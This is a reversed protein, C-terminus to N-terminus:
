NIIEHTLIRLLKQWSEIERRDLESRINQLSFISYNKELIEISSMRITVDQSTEGTKIRLLESEGAEMEEWWGKNGPIGKGLQRASILSVIGLLRQAEENYLVVKDRNELVLVGIPLYNIIAQLLQHHFEKEQRLKLFEGTILNYENRLHSFEGDKVNM